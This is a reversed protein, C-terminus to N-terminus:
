HFESLAEKVLLLYQRSVPIDDEIYSMKLSYGSYNRTLKEVFALNVISTRHCRIFNTQHVLQFEIDKLTNRILKKETSDNELYFIEIYNDASKILIINKYKLSLKESKNASFINIEKEEGKKEIERIRSIYNINQRQLKLIIHEQSKNKYLIVLIIMPLFCVLLAKFMLYLTLPSKGVFRIYFGFATANLILLIISLILPPGSEWDSTKFWKANLLPMVILIICALIFTIAGFGAVYLLRNDFNLKELPFPQFFLIFLFVGFSIMFLRGSEEKLSNKLSKDPNNL